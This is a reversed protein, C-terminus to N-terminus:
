VWNVPLHGVKPYVEKSQSTVTPLYSTVGMKVLAQSAERLGDDFMKKTPQPVSFDFGNAGNIQVDIFGPALIRGGLDIVEDPCLKDEYFAHQGQLIKGSISDVWLDQEILKQGSPVRCNTFKIVQPVLVERTISPM